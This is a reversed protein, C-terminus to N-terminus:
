EKREGQIVCIIWCTCVVMVVCLLLGTFGVARVAYDDALFPFFDSMAGAYWFVLFGAVISVASRLLDDKM